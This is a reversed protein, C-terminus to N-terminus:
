SRKENGRWNKLQKQLREAREKKYRNVARQAVDWLGVRTRQYYEDKGGIEKYRKLDVLDSLIAALEANHLRLNENDMQLNEIEDRLNPGVTAISDMPMKIM